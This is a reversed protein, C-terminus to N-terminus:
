GNSGDETYNNDGYFATITGDDAVNCRTRGGYMKYKDFDAGEGYGIADQTRAFTKNIYDIKLGINDQIFSLDNKILFNAIDDALIGGAVINGDTDVVTLQGADKPDLHINTGGSPASEGGGGTPIAALAATIAKQTMTGDENDGTGKYYKVINAISRTTNDPYTTVLNKAIAGGSNSNSTSLILKKIEADVTATDMSGGEEMNEIAANLAAIAANANEVAEAALQNNTNTQQTITNINNVAQNAKTVASQATAAYSEIQGQPTLAKALIIDVIDM